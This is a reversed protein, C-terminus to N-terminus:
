TSVNKITKGKPGESKDVRHTNHSIISMKLFISVFLHGILDYEPGTWLCTMPDGHMFVLPSTPPTPVQRSRLENQTAVM